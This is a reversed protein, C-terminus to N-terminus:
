DPAARDFRMRAGSLVAWAPQLIQILVGTLPPGAIQASSRSIELKTNGEILDQRDILAPLYSQYAVDFFVTAVGTVLAVAYLVGMTLGGMVFAVPISALALGRAVDCLILM